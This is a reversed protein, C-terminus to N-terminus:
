PQGNIVDAVGAAQSIGSPCSGPVPTGPTGARELERDGHGMSFLTSHRAMLTGNACPFLPTERDSACSDYQQNLYMIRVSDTSEWASLAPEIGTMREVQSRAALAMNKSSM